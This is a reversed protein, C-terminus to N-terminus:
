VRVFGGRSHNRILDENKIRASVAEDLKKELTKSMLDFLDTGKAVSKVEEAVEKILTASFLRHLKRKIAAKRKEDLDKAKELYYALIKFGREGDPLDFFFRLHFRRLEEPSILEPHNSTAVVISNRDPNELFKLMENRVVFLTDAVSSNQPVTLLKEYEDILIVAPGAKELAAVANRVKEETKGFFSNRLESPDFQYLPLGFYSSLYKAFLTKGTGPVGSLIVNIPIRNIQKAVDEYGASKEERIGLYHVGPVRSLINGKTNFTRRIVEEETFGATLLQEIGSAIVKIQDYPLSKVVGVLTNKLDSNEIFSFLSYVDAPTPPALAASLSSNVLDRKDEVVIVTASKRSVAEDILEKMRDKDEPDIFSDPPVIVLTQNQNLQNIGAILNTIFRQPSRVSSSSERSSAGLRRVGLASVYVTDPPLTNFLKERENDSTIVLRLKKLSTTRCMEILRNVSHVVELGNTM